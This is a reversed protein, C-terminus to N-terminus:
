GPLAVSQDPQRPNNSYAFYTVKWDLWGETVYDKILHQWPAFRVLKNSYSDPLEYGVCDGAFLKPRYDNGLAEKKVISITKDEQEEEEEEGFVRVRCM